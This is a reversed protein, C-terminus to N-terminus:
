SISNLVGWIGWDGHLLYSPVIYTKTQIKKNEWFPEHIFYARLSDGVVIAFVLM